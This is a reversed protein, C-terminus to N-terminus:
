DLVFEELYHLLTIGLEQAKEHCEDLFEELDQPEINNIRENM